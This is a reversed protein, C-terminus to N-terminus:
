TLKNDFYRSIYELMNEKYEYIGIFSENKAFIFLIKLLYDYHM